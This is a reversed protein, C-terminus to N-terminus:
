SALPLGMEAATREVKDTCMYVADAPHLITMKLVNVRLEVAVIRAAMGAAQFTTAEAQLVSPNRSDIIQYM